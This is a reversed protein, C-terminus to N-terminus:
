FRWNNCQRRWRKKFNASWKVKNIIIGKIIAGRRRFLKYYLSLLGM